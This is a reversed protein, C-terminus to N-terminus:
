KTANAGNLTLRYSKLKSGREISKRLGDPTLYPLDAFVDPALSKIEGLILIMHNMYERDYKKLTNKLNFVFEQELSQDKRGAISLDSPTIFDEDLNNFLDNIPAFLKVTESIDTFAIKSIIEKFLYDIAPHNLSESKGFNILKCIPRQFKRRIKNEAILCIYETLLFEIESFVHDNNLISIKEKLSQLKNQLEPIPGRFLRFEKILKLSEQVSSSKILSIALDALREKIDRNNDLLPINTHTEIIVNKLQEFQTYDM